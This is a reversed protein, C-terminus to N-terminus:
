WDLLQEQLPLDEVVLMVLRDYSIQITLVCSNYILDYIRLTWQSLPLLATYGHNAPQAYVVPEPNGTICFPQIALFQGIM